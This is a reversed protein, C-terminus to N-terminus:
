NVSSSLLVLSLAMVGMGVIFSMGTVSNEPDYRLAPPVLETVSIIVMM